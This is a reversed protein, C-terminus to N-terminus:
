IIKHSQHGYVEYLTYMTCHVTCVACHLSYTYHISYLTYHIIYVICQITYLVTYLTCHVTYLLYLICYTYMPSLESHINLTHINYMICQKITKRAHIHTCLTPIDIFGSFFAVFYVRFFAVTSFAVDHSGWIEVRERIM